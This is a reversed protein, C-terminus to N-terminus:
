WKITPKKKPPKRIDLGDFSNDPKFGRGTIDNDDFLDNRTLVKDTRFDTMNTGLEPSGFYNILLMSLQIFNISRIKYYMDLFDYQSLISTVGNVTFKIGVDCKEERLIVEFEIKNKSISFSTKTTNPGFINAIYSGSSNVKIIDIDESDYADLLAAMKNLKKIFKNRSVETLLLPEKKDGNNLQIQIYSNPNLDININSLNGTNYTYESHYSTLQDKYGNYYLRTRFKVSISPRKLIDISITRVDERRARIIYKPM